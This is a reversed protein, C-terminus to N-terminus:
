RALIYVEIEAPSGEPEIVCPRVKKAAINTTIVGIGTVTKELKVWSASGGPQVELGIEHNKHDGSIPFVYLSILTEDTLALEEGEVESNANLINKGSDVM